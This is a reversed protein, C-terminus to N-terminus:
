ESRLSNVPNAVAAKIAQFSVTLLTIVLAVICTSVFTWVSIEIRYTYKQLWSDLLYYALPISLVCSLMVLLVFDRSLMKWLSAISAGLIKRIGIEKTRQEAVFSALGFLGLCSIFIALVAFVSALKGIREETAFKMAYEQDAFKYEFPAIPIVKKFVSEIKALAENTPVHSNIKINIWNPSGNFGKLYFVTPEIPKYPSSMVMDKIVGLIKYNIVRKDEWWTWSVPEGTPNKLGMLNAATENIVIGSSDSANARSFDRGEIFQWGATKGHYHSVSLTAFSKDLNPDKGKWDWGNNGSAVETVSGMSESVEEVVGTNKLENRLVDYKGYFDRSKKKIMILGERTYGVPRSKAYQIQQYVVITGIILIVSISFQLVVLVKRPVSAFRGSHFTGKLVKIPKFSSLYLAPYSGSLASTILIFGAGILWFNLNTWPMSIQKGAIENFSPLSLSAFLIAALFAIFVVLLSETFFQNVLQSRISGITKRIGVEKARKESRATSLNMFNICALLLVFLGITGVLWVMRLPSIVGQKEPSLHWQSMPYLFIHQQKKVADERDAPDFQLANKIQETTADFNSSPLIEAYIKIFHNRWNTLAREEIWKNEILYLSWPAFFRVENFKTNLPFDEYVGTVTVDTKNSMRIVKNLPDDDGFLQKALSTSIMISHTDNLGTRAGHIMKFTFMEPAAADAYLGPVSIMKEGSSLIYEGGWSSRVIHKFHSHYNNILEAGLPYTMTTGTWKKGDGETEAIQAIHDYNQYYKNFSLEDWIWLGNIIAVAMGVALGGINILSYGKNRLMNRWGIKFYSKYMTWRNLKKYGKAQRIIGPRFLLLVDISFKLDAKRKGSEKLKEHYLEM